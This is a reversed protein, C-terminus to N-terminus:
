RLALEECRALFGLLAPNFTEPAELYPWHAAGEVVLLEADYLVAAARRADAIPFLPDHSGWVLLTPTRVGCLAPMLRTSRKVGFINIGSRLVELMRRPVGPECRIAYLEDVLREADADWERLLMALMREVRRRSPRFMAEGVLPLTLLRQSLAVRRGLGATGILTLSRVRGPESIATAGAIFGGLHAFHAVGDNAGVMASLLDLAALGMVLWKVKIPVPLPFIYIKQDPWYLAFALAVGFIAASAGVVMTAASFAMFVYSLAAGGLGCFFYYRAFETGGMRGELATGFFFLMLMNFALHFFGGHVFMYTGLTWPQQLVLAPSFAFWDFFWPGTFVTITLLYVVANAVLLRRVWPTLPSRTLM